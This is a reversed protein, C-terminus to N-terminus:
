IRHAQKDLWRSFSHSAGQRKRSNSTQLRTCVLDLPYASANSAASGLAGSFAQVLPPLTSTM